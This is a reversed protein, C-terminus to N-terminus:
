QQLAKPEETIYLIKFTKTCKKVQNTRLQHLCQAQTSQYTSKLIKHSRPPRQLPQVQTQQHRPTRFLGQKISYFTILFLISIFIVPITM